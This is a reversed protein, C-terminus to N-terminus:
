KKRVTSSSSIVSMPILPLVVEELPTGKLNKALMGRIAGICVSIFTDILAPNSVKLDAEQMDNVFRHFPKVVFEARVGQLVLEEGDCMLRVRMSVVIREPEATANIRHEFQFALKEKNVQTFDTDYNFKYSDEQMGIIGYEIKDGSRM